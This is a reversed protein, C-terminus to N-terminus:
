FQGNSALCVVEVIKEFVSGSACCCFTRFVARCSTSCEWSGNVLGKLFKSICVLSVIEFFIDKLNRPRPAAVVHGAVRRQVREQPALRTVEVIEKLVQRVPVDAIQEAIRRQVPQVREPLRILVVEVIEKGYRSVYKEALQEVM